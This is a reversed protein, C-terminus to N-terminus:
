RQELLKFAVLGGITVIIAIWQGPRLLEFKESFYLIGLSFLLCTTIDYLLSDFVIDSSYRSVFVWIPVLGLLWLIVMWKSGSTGVNNKVSAYAGLLTVVILLPIWVIYMFWRMM